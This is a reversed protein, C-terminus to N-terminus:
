LASPHCYGAYKAGSDIANGLPTAATPLPPQRHWRASIPVYSSVMWRGSHWFILTISGCVLVSDRCRSMSDRCPSVGDRRPSVSDRCRSVGDRCPSV